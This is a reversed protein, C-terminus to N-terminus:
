CNTRWRSRKKNILSIEGGMAQVVEIFGSRTKNLGVNKILLEGQDATLAATIFFAASSIDGPVKIEFSNLKRKKAAKLVIRDAEIDIEVGAGKLMRETHDRSVAPENVITEGESKLAALLISSKLQASAVPLTYELAALKQGRISM